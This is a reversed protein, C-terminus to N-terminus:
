NSLLKLMKAANVFDILNEECLNFRAIVTEKKDAIIQLKYKNDKKDMQLHNFGEKFFGEDISATMLDTEFQNFNTM